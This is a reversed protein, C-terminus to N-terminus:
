VEAREPLGLRRSLARWVLWCLSGLLAGLIWGALVDTPFHKGLYVRSWGVVLPVAWVFSRVRRWLLAALLALAATNAAHASPFSTGREKEPTFDAPRQLWQGSEQYYVSALSEVPRLRGVAHKIQNTSFDSLGMGVLLVIFYVSHDKGRLLCRWVLLGSLLVLLPWRQSFVPLIVDLAANRWQQNLLTFLSLDMTLTPFM